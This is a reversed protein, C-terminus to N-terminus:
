VLMRGQGVLAPMALFYLQPLRLGHVLAGTSKFTPWVRTSPARPREQIVADALQLCQVPQFSLTLAMVIFM